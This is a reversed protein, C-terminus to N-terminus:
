HGEKYDSLTFLDPYLQFLKWRFLRWEKGLNQVMGLTKNIDDLDYKGSKAM